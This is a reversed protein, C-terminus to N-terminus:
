STGAPARWTKTTANTYLTELIQNPAGIGAAIYDLGQQSITLPVGASAQSEAITDCNLRTALFAGLSATLNVISVPSILFWAGDLGTAPQGPDAQVQYVLAGLMDEGQLSSPTTGTGTTLPGIYHWHNDEGSYELRDRVWFSNDFNAIAWGNPTGLSNAPDGRNLDVCTGWGHTSKGAVAVSVGKPPNAYLAQQAALDRYAGSEPISLTVGAIAAASKEALFAGAADHQLQQPAQVTVLQSSPMQGNPYPPNTM